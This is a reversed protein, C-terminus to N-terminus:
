FMTNQPNIVRCNLPAVFSGFFSQEEEDCLLCLLTLAQQSKKTSLSEKRSLFFIHHSIPLVSFQKLLVYCM